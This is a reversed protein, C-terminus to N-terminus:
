EIFHTPEEPAILWIILYIIIPLGGFLLLVIFVIRVVNPDINFYVGLGACVGAIIKNKTSRHLQKPKNM